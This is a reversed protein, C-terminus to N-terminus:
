ITLSGDSNKKRDPLMPSNILYRHIPNEILLGTQGDYMTVSWFANAPPYRGAPFTLTYNHKSGDLKQGTNDATALPYMSEVEDNGYIGAGVDARSACGIVEGGAVAVNRLDVLTSIDCHSKVAILDRLAIRGLTGAQKRDAVNPWRRRNRGLM